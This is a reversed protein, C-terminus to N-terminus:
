SGAALDILEKFTKLCSTINYLKNTEKQLEEQLKTREADIKDHYSKMDKDFVETTQYRNKCKPCYKERSVTRGNAITRKTQLNGNCPAPSNKKSGSKTITGPCLM